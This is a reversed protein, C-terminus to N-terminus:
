HLWRRIRRWIQIIVLGRILILSLNLLVLLLLLIVLIPLHLLRLKNRLLKMCLYSRLCSIAKTWLYTWLKLIVLIAVNRIVNKDWSLSIRLSVSLILLVLLAESLISWKRASRFSHWPVWRPYNVLLM